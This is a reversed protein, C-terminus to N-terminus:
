LHAPDYRLGRGSVTVVWRDYPVGARIFLRRLTSNVERIVANDGTYRRQWVKEMLFEYDLIKGPAACLAEILRLQLNTLRLSAPQLSNDAVEAQRLERRIIVPGFNFNPSSSAHSPSYRQLVRALNACQLAVYAISYDTRMVFTAGHRLLECEARLPAGLIVIPPMNAGILSPRLIPGGTVHGLCYECVILLWRNLPSCSTRAFDFSDAVQVPSGAAQIQQVLLARLPTAAAILLITSERLM